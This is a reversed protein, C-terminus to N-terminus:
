RKPLGTSNDVPELLAVRRAEFRFDMVSVKMVLGIAIVELSPGCAIGVMFLINGPPV